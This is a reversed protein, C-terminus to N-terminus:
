AQSGLAALLRAKGRAVHSKVTGLPAGLIAAAETHSFDHILCLVVAARQEIPLAALARGVLVSEPSPPSVMPAVDAAWTGERARRRFWARQAGRAKRWAIACLWSRVSADGRYTGPRTWAVMFTEQALDDAESADALLRRLFDRVAQQHRDILVNFARESGNRIDAILAVDDDAM